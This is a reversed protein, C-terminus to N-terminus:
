CALPGHREAQPGSCAGWSPATSSFSSSSTTDSYATSSTGTTDSYPTAGSPSPLPPPGQELEQAVACLGGAGVGVDSYAATADSYTTARSDRCATRPCSAGTPTQMLQQVM